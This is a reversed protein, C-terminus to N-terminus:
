ELVIVCAMAVCALILLEYNHNNIAFASQSLSNALNNNFDNLVNEIDSNFQALGQLNFKPYSAHINMENMTRLQGFVYLNLGENDPDIGYEPSPNTPYMGYILNQYMPQAEPKATEVVVKLFDQYSLNAKITLTIKSSCNKNDIVDFELTYTITCDGTWNSDEITISMKGATIKAKAVPKEM